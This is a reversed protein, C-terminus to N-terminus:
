EGSTRGAFQAIRDRLESLGSEADEPHTKLIEPVFTVEILESIVEGDSDRHTLWWVGHVETECVRTPGLVNITAAVEGCGLVGRLVEYDGPAMPLSRLDIAGGEGTALLRVLLTEVEHLVPLANGRKGAGGQGPAVIKGTTDKLERM